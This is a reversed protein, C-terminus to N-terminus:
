LSPTIHSSKPARVVDRALSNQILQLCNLQYKPLNYYLSNCYDLKSHVITTAITSVTKLDLYPRICRLQRIHSYCSKSLAFIQDSFTLHEDSIFGLNRASHVSDLSCSNIKALPQQVIVLQSAQLLDSLVPTISHSISELQVQM